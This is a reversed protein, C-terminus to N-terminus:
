YHLYGRYKLSKVHEPNIGLAQDFYKLAGKYNGREREVVGLLALTQLSEHQQKLKKEADDLNGKSIFEEAIEINKDREPIPSPTEKSSVSGTPVSAGSGQTQSVEAAPQKQTEQSVEGQPKNGGCSIQLFLLTILCLFSLFKIKGTMQYGEMLKSNFNNGFLGNKASDRMFGEQGLIEPSGKKAGQVM